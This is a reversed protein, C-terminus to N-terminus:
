HIERISTSLCIKRAAVSPYFNCILSEMEGLWLISVVPWGTGASVRYRWAGPMTAVPTGVQLWQYSEVLGRIKREWPLAKVVLGVLRDILCFVLTPNVSESIYWGATVIIKLTFTSMIEANNWFAAKQKRLTLEIHIMTRQNTSKSM